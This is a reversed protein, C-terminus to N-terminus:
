SARLLWTWAPVVPVSLMGIKVTDAHHATVIVAGKARKEGLAEELARIERARTELDDFDACVQVLIADSKARRAIFDVEFGSETVVYKTSYGRRRLELFVINELLWGRDSASEYTFSRALGPDILYCKRPRSTRVRLSRSDVETTFILFADELYQVFAHITDKGVRLGQSKLDNFMKHVSFLRGPAHLFQRLVQRLAATNSVQHREVIDRLVAVDVYDQHTRTRLEDSMAQVEPFGGVDIYDELAREFRSRMKAPPPWQGPLPIDAHALYERFSFPLIETTLSRGRLSTAVETGLLKASSGSVVVQADETDILRRVFREWGPVNQIEDFFYWCRGDRSEPYRRYLAEPFLGLESADIPLLREDELNVYLARERPVGQEKLQRL